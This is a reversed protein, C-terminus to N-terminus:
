PDVNSRGCQCTGSANSQPAQSTPLREAAATLERLCRVRVLYAPVLRSASISRVTRNHFRSSDAFCSPVNDPSATCRTANSDDLVIAFAPRAAHVLCDPSTETHIRPWNLGDGRVVITIGNSGPGSADRPGITLSAYKPFTGGSRRITPSWATRKLPSPCYRLLIPRGGERARGM